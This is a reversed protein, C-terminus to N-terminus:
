AVRLLQELVRPELAGSAHNTSDLLITDGDAVAVLTVSFLASMKPTTLAALLQLQKNDIGTPVLRIDHIFTPWSADDNPKELLTVASRGKGDLPVPKGTTKPILTDLSRRDKGQRQLIVGAEINSRGGAFGWGHLTFNASGIYTTAQGKSWSSKPM